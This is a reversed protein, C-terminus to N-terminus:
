CGSTIYKCGQGLGNDDRGGELRRVELCPLGRFGLGVSLSGHVQLDLFNGTSRLTEVMILHTEVGNCLLFRYLCKQTHTYVYMYIYLYLYLYLCLYLYLYLYMGALNRTSPMPNATKLCLNEPEGEM